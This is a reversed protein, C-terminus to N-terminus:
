SCKSQQSFAQSIKYSSVMISKNYYEKTASSVPRTFQTLSIGEPFFAYTTKTSDFPSSYITSTMEVGLPVSTALHKATPALSLLGLIEV